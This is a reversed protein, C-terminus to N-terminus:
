LERERKKEALFAKMLGRGKYKGRLFSEVVRVTVEVTEGAHFPLDKISLNRDKPVRTRIRYMKKM